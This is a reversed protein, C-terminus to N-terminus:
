SKPFAFVLLGVFFPPMAGDRDGDNVHSGLWLALQALRSFGLSAHV